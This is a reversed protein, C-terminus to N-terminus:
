IREKFTWRTSGIISAMSPDYKIITEIKNEDLVDVVHRFEPMRAYGIVCADVLIRATLGWIRSTIRTPVLSSDEGVGNSEPMALATVTASFDHNIWPVGLWNFVGSIHSWDEVEGDKNSSRLFQEFSVSFVSSVEKPDIALSSVLKSPPHSNVLTSSLYAVVPTLLLDPRPLHPRLRCLHELTYPPPINEPIGIEEWAERRATDWENEGRDSKGPILPHM